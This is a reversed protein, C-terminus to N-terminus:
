LYAHLKEMTEGVSTVSENLVNVQRLADNGGCSIFVHTASDPFSELQAPVDTTVDGDVALLKVQSENETISRLIDTVSEGESVYGANDFISDGILIINDMEEKKLM